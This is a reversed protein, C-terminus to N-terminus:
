HWTNMLQSGVVASSAQGARATGAAQQGPQMVSCSEAAAVWGQHPLQEEKAHHTEETQLCSSHRFGKRPRFSNGEICLGLHFGRRVPRWDPQHQQCHVGFRNCPHQMSTLTRHAMHACEKEIGQKSFCNFPFLLGSFKTGQSTIKWCGEM